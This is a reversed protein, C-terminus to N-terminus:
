LSTNFQIFVKKINPYRELINLEKNKDNLISVFELEMQSTPPERNMFVIFDDDEKSNTSSSNSSRRRGPINKYKAELTHIALNQIRQREETTISKPLWRMKYSPHYFSALIKEASRVNIFGNLININFHLKFGNTNSISIVFYM